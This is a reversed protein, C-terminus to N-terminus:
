YGLAWVRNDEIKRIYILTHSDFERQSTHLACSQSSSIPEDFRSANSSSCWHRKGTIGWPQKQNELTAVKIQIEPQKIWRVTFNGAVYNLQASSFFFFFTDLSTLLIKLTKAPCLQILLMLVKASAALCWCFKKIKEKQPPVLNIQKCGRARDM